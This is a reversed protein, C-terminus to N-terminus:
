GIGCTVTHWRDCRIEVVQPESLEHHRPNNQGAPHAPQIRQRIDSKLAQLLLHEDTAGRAHTIVSLHEQCRTVLM